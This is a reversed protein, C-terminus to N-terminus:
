EPKLFRQAGLVANTGLLEELVRPRVDADDAAAVGAKPRRKPDLVELGGRVHDDEVLVDASAARGPSVSTEREGPPRLDRRQDLADALLLRDPEGPGALVCDPLDASEALSFADVRVEM